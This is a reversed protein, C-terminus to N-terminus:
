SSVNTLKTAEKSVASKALNIYIYLFFFLPLSSVKRCFAAPAKERGGKWTANPGFVNHFRGMRTELNFDKGYAICAEETYLKELGYLDQPRAPWAMHEALGQNNPDEQIHEPYVCASSAFFIKKCQM